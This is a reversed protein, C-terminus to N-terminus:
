QNNTVTLTGGLGRAKIGRDYMSEAFVPPVTFQGRNAPKIQYRIESERPGVRTYLLVRDERVDVYDCGCTHQGPQISSRTVEFGGPLLDVVAVNDISRGNLSRMRLVVTLPNGMTVRDTVVGGANRYERYIEMGDQIEEAPMGTEFGTSIMQYYGGPGGTPPDISFRLATGGASFGTRLLLANSTRILRWQNGVNESISLARPNLELHHSYAKLALVAYAASLTNFDGRQIPDTVHRFDAATFHNLLDPFYRSVLAFYQADMGLRTYYDYWYNKGPEGFRYARILENAEDDKKLLAYAAALYTGTIDSKWTDKQPSRELYDRLNLVYNTTIIEERTLLYIAYAETREEELNAPTLAVMRQLRRIGLQYMDVPPDFGADRAEILFHMVYATLFDIGHPDPEPGWYGFSGQDSQRQRLIEFTHELQDAVEARKLGFDTEDSLLLRCLGGSSIQESCGNPYNHLYADLGHALGLPLPSLVAELSRYEPHFQRTVKLEATKGTFNGGRVDTMLAVPPRVSLTSRLTSEQGGASARFIVSASGLKEKARLTFVVTLEKGEPITVRNGPAKTVELHESVQASLAIQAAAGSGSVNNAVTVGVEFTDGPAVFTPVGPTIVFPGRILSATEASGVADGSIAVAMVKLNGSFFDPVDYTVERQTTDADLIGSWYVVPKETVRRFPNLQRAGEDGGTAAARLISFEPILLDVIQSTTVNLAQKTFFFDLPDPTTYGTVQLIGEDVAFIAIRGPRDAKYDIKMPEGPKCTKATSLTLSIKRRDRNAEFPAVGYSLPSMYIERSDLARIFSVNIYGTGDLGAPLRIHQVTSTKDTTFWQCAYVKEREITILGSGTYPAVISVEIDDGSNYSKRDLKVKLEANRDLARRTDGAGVVTFWLASVRDGDANRLELRYTGPNGAPLTWNFGAAPITVEQCSVPQDKEVSEYAYTGDEQRTLVSLYDQQIVSLKLNQVAIRNLGQDIAIFQLTQGHGMKVYDLSGDSKYGVVYPLPSVLANLTTAVSRGGEAEFGETQFSMQYTADAYNDLDLDFTAEGNENSTQEGLDESQ